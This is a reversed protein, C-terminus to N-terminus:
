WVTIIGNVYHWFNGATTPKVESYFYVDPNILEDNMPIKQPDLHNPLRSFLNDWQESTGGYYITEIHAWGEFAYDYIYIVSEPIVLTKIAQGYHFAPEEWTIIEKSWQSYGVYDFAGFCNDPLYYERGDFTDPLVLTDGECGLFDILVVIESDAYFVLGNDTITISYEKPNANIKRAYYAVGGHSYEDGMVLELSSNNNVVFLSSCSGFADNGISKLTSPLTIYAIGSYMFAGYEITELGEPLDVTLLTYCGSFAYEGISKLTSPLVVHTLSQCNNFATYPIETIGEGLVVSKLNTAYHFSYRGLQSGGPITIYEINSHWFADDWIKVGNNIIVTEIQSYAFARMYIEKVTDPLTFVKCDNAPAFAVLCTMDKNYLNGNLSTFHPHDKSIEITKLNYCRDFLLHHEAEGNNWDYTSPIYLYELASCGEFSNAYFTDIGESVIISRVTDNNKFADQAIGTVRTGNVSTPIVIQEKDGIYCVLKAVNNDQDIFFIFGDEYCLFDCTYDISEGYYHSQMYLYKALRIISICRGDAMCFYTNGIWPETVFGNNYLSGILQDSTSIYHDGTCVIHSFEFWNNYYDSISNSGVVGCFTSFINGDEYLFQLDNSIDFSTHDVGDIMLQLSDMEYTVAHEGLQAATMNKYEEPSSAGWTPDYYSVAGDSTCVTLWAHTSFDNFNIFVDSTTMMNGFLTAGRTYLSPINVACLMDHMLNTYGACVAKKSEFVQYSTNYCDPDSYSINSVIWDYITDIKERETKCNKTLSLTFDKIIKYNDMDKEFPIYLFIQQGKEKYLDIIDLALADTYQAVLAAYETLTVSEPDFVDKIVWSRVVESGGFLFSDFGKAGETPYVRARASGNLNLAQPDIEPADGEFYIASLRDNIWFAKAPIYEIDDSFHMEILSGGNFMASTVNDGFYIIEIDSPAVYEGVVEFSSYEQTVFFTSIEGPTSREINAVDNEGQKSYSVRVYIQEIKEKQVDGCEFCTREKSGDQGFAPEATVKWEGYNHFCGNSGFIDNWNDPYKGNDDFIDNRDNGPYKGNDDFWDNNPNNNPKENQNKNNCAALSLIIAFILLLALLIRFTKM